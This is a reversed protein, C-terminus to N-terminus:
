SMCNTLLMGDIKKVASTMNWGGPRGARPVAGGRGGCRGGAREGAEGQGVEMELPFRAGLVELLPSQRSISVHLGQLQNM